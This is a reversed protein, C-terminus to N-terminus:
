MKEMKIVNPPTILPQQGYSSTLAAILSSARSVVNGLYPNVSRALETSWDMSKGDRAIDTDRFTLTLAFCVRISYLAEPKFFVRREFIVELCNERVAADVSYSIKLELKDCDCRKEIQTYSARKLTYQYEENFYKNFDLM